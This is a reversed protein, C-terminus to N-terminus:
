ALELKWVWEWLFQDLYIHAEVRSFRDEPTAFLLPVSWVTCGRMRILAKTIRKNYLIMDLSAVLLIEFKKSTKTASSFPKFSVKDSVGFVPKRADHGMYVVARSLVPTVSRFKGATLKGRNIVHAAVHSKWCHPMKVLTSESLGTCGRTLGLFELNHERLLKVTM